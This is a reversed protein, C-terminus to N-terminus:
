FWMDVIVRIKRSAIRFIFQNEVCETSHDHLRESILKKCMQANKEMKNLERENLILMRIYYFTPEFWKALGQFESDIFM